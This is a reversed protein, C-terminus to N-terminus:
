NFIFALCLALVESLCINGQRCCMRLVRLRSPVCAMRVATQDVNSLNVRRRKWEDDVSLSDFAFTRLLYNFGFRCPVCSTHIHKSWVLRPFLFSSWPGCGRSISDAAPAHNETRVSQTCCGARLSRVSLSFWGKIYGYVSPWSSLNGPPLTCNGRTGTLWYPVYPQARGDVRRARFLM